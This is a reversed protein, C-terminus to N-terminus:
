LVRGSQDCHVLTPNSLRSLHTKPTLLKDNILKLTDSCPNKGKGVFTEAM